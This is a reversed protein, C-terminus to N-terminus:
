RREGRLLAYVLLTLSGLLTGVLLAWSPVGALREELFHTSTSRIELGQTTTQTSTTTIIVTETESRAITRPVTKGVTELHTTSHLVTGVTTSAVDVTTTHTYTSAESLTTTTGIIATSTVTTYTPFLLTGWTHPALTDLSPTSPWFGTGAGAVRFAIGIRHLRGGGENLDSLPIQIEGQWGWPRNEESHIWPKGAAIEWGSGTGRFLSSAGSRKIQLRYHDPQPALSRDYKPDMFIDISGQIPDSETLNWALCLLNSYTKAHITYVDPGPPQIARQPPYPSQDFRIWSADSWEGPFTELIGDMAIVRGENAPTFWQSDLQAAAFPLIVQLLLLIATPVHNTNIAERDRRVPM